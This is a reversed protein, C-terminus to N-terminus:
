RWELNTKSKNSDHRLLLDVNGKDDNTVDIGTFRGGSTVQDVLTSTNILTGNLLVLLLSSFQTFRRELVGPNKVVQLGLTLSTNCNINGQPFELGGLVSKVKMSAGPCLSKM